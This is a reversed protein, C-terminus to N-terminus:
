YNGLGTQRQGYEDLFRDVHRVLSAAFRDFQLRDHPTWFVGDLGDEEGSLLFSAGDYLDTDLLRLCLEECRDAYSAGVFTDAMWAQPATISNGERTGQKGM